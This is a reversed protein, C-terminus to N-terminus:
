ISRYPRHEHRRRSDAGRTVAAIALAAWVAAVILLEM